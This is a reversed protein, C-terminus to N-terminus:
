SAHKIKRSTKCMSKSEVERGFLNSLEGALLLGRVRLCQGFLAGLERSM